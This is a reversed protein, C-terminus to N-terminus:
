IELINRRSNEPIQELVELGDKFFISADIFQGMTLLERIAQSVFGVATVLLERHAEPGGLDAIEETSPDGKAVKLWHRAMVMDSEGGAATMAMVVGYHLKWRYSHLLMGYAASSM